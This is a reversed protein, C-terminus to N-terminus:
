HGQQGTPCMNIEGYLPILTRLKLSGIAPLDRRSSPITSTSLYSMHCVPYVCSSLRATDLSVCNFQPNNVIGCKCLRKHSGQIFHKRATTTVKKRDLWIAPSCVCWQVLPLFPPARFQSTRYCGPAKDESPRVAVCRKVDDHSYTYYMICQWLSM